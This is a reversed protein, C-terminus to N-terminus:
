MKGSDDLLSMTELATALETLAQEIVPWLGPWMGYTSGLTNPEKRARESYKAVETRYDELNETVVALAADRRHEPSNGSGTLRQSALGEVLTLGADGTRVWHDLDANLHDYLHAAEFSALSRQVGLDRLAVYPHLPALDYLKTVECYALGLSELVAPLLDRSVGPDRLLPNPFSAVGGDYSVCQKARDIRGLLLGTFWGRTMALIVGHSAPVFETIPRARRNNWFNTRAAPSQAAVGWGAIIPSTISSFILPDHAAGLTSTISIREVRRATTFWADIKGASDAGLKDALIEKVSEEIPHDRFPLQTPVARQPVSARQHLLSLLGADIQVLPEASDLAASLAVRFSARRRALETPELTPDDDLYSALDAALFREFATGQRRLWAKAREELDEPSFSTDFTASARPATGGLLLSPDPNWSSRISLAPAVPRQMAVEDELFGGNIVGDRAEVIRDGPLVARTSRALLTDFLSAFDDHDIVLQENPPPLLSDPVARDPWAATIPPTVGDGIFGRLHLEENAFRISQALPVLVGDAFEKLLQRAVQRRKAEGQYGARVWLGREVADHIAPHQPKINGTIALEANVESRADESWRRFLEVEEALESCVAQVEHNVLELLRSATQLGYRAVVELTSDVVIAPSREVWAKARERLGGDYGREYEESAGPLCEVIRATWGQGDLDRVGTTVLDLVTGVGQQLLVEADEPRLDDIVQNNDGREHLRSRQLFWVLQERAIDDAIQLPTRTEDRNISRAWELHGEWLWRAALKALRESSYRAFRDVGLSVEAYGFAEFVAPHDRMVVDPAKVTNGNANNQWNAKTYEILQVQIAPDTVWSKLARGMMEYVAKQNGFSVGKTNAAGVLFPFAPGSKAIPMPAGALEFLRSARPSNANLWYGNMLESLAALANPQVGATALDGLHSFVDSAYLMGFSNGAWHGPLQRMLDSVDMLLGAGTGGTLSSVIIAVPEMPTGAQQGFARHHIEALQASAQASSLQNNAARLRALIKDAYALGITRGVARFQGAGTTIPVNLFTPDVRWSALETWSDDTTPTVRTAVSSFDIGNMVLGLYNEAPLPPVDTIETGDQGTPTDIHLMQWGAPFDKPDWGIQQLWQELEHRIYRLTKGGSGGLGVLLFKRLM